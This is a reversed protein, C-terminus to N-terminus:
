EFLELLMKKNLERNRGLELVYCRSQMAMFFCSWLRSIFIKSKRFFDDMGNEWFYEIIIPLGFGIVSHVMLPKMMKLPNVKYLMPTDTNRRKCNLLITKKSGPGINLKMDSLSILRKTGYFERELEYMPYEKLNEPIEEFGIRIPFPLIQGDRDIMPSDDSLFEIEEDVLSSILTSKGGKSPMMGICSIGNKMIGFGHVRHIGNLDLVKGVRSLIMLYCIEHLKHLDESYLSAHNIEFNFISLLKGYYDCYRVKGEDYTLAKQSQHDAGREPIKSFPIEGLTAEIKLSEGREFKKEFHSFDKNLRELLDASSSEVLVRVGYFEFTKKDIM